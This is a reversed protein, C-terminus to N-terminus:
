STFCGSGCLYRRLSQNSRAKMKKRTVERRRPPQLVVKIATDFVAKVNRQTKSSCEIYAVAGIQKRLEEGQETSIISAASHDALYSRDERLDATASIGPLLLPHVCRCGQLQSAEVQQLGGPGGGATDWLGLNVISGGVSVNASFNDFVTPIYDSSLFFLSTTTFLHSCEVTPFKNCTYCILMCTKGVAGDGVTVCKIFKTVSSAAAASM